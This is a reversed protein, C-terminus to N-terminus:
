HWGSSSHHPCSSRHCCGSFPDGDIPVPLMKSSAPHLARFYTRIRRNRAIHYFTLGSPFLFRFVEDSTHLYSTLTPSMDIPNLFTASCMVSRTLAIIRDIPADQVVERQYARGPIERYVPDHVLAKWVAQNEERIPFTLTNNLDQLYICDLSPKHSFPRHM